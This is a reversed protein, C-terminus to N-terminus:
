SIRLPFTKLFFNKAFFETDLVFKFIKLVNDPDLDGRSSFNPDALLIGMTQRTVPGPDPHGVRSQLINIKNSVEAECKNRLM